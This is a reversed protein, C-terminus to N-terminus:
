LLFYSVRIVCRLKQGEKRFYLLATHLELKM